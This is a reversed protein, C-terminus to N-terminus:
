SVIVFAEVAKLLPHFAHQAPANVTEPVSGPASQEGTFLRKCRAQQLKDGRRPM